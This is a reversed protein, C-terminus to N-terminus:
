DTDTCFFVHYSDVSNLQTKLLASGTFGLLFYVSLLFTHGAQKPQLRIFFSNNKMHDEEMFTTPSSFWSGSLSAFSFGLCIRLSGIIKM